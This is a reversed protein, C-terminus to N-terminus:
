LAGSKMGELAPPCAIGKSSDRDDIAPGIVPVYVNDMIISVKYLM